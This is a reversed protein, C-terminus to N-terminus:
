QRPALLGLAPAPEWGAVELEPIGPAGAARAYLAASETGGVADAVVVGLLGARVPKGLARLLREGEAPPVFALGPQLRLTLRPALLVEAPGNVRVRQAAALATHM